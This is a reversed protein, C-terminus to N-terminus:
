HMTHIIRGTVKSITQFVKLADKEFKTLKINALKLKTNLQMVKHLKLELARNTQMLAKETSNMNRGNCYKFFPRGKVAACKRHPQIIDTLRVDTIGTKCCRGGSRGCARDKYPTPSLNGAFFQWFKASNYTCCKKTITPQYKKWTSIITGVYILNWSGHVAEGGLEFEVSTPKPHHANTYTCEIKISKNRDITVTYEQKSWDLITFTKM